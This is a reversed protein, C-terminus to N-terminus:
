LWFAVRHRFRVYFTTGIVLSALAISGAVAWITVNPLVGLLPKRVVEVLYYLPNLYLVFQLKEGRLSAPAWIIPTVFFLLQLINSIIQHLDRFRTCVISFTLTIGFLAITDLALGPLALLTVWGIPWRFLLWLLVILLANHALVIIAGALMRYVHLVLPVPMAKIISGAQIFVLCGMIMTSSLYAWIIMGIAFYPLYQSLDGSGLITGYLIGVSFITAALSLTIWIPGITTRRYRFKTDAWALVGWQEWHRVLSFLEELAPNLGQGPPVGPVATPPTRTKLM